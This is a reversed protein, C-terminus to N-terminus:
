IVWYATGDSVITLSNYQTSINIQTTNDITGSGDVVVSVTGSSGVRKVTFTKGSYVASAAPLTITIEGSALIVHDDALVTYNTTKSVVTLRSTPTYGLADVVEASTVPPTNSWQLDGNEDVVMLQGQTPMSDPWKVGKITLSSGGNLSPDLSIGSTSDTTIVAPGSGVPNVVLASASVSLDGTSSLTAGSVTIDSLKPTGWGSQGSGMIKFSKSETDLWVDGPNVSYTLAPDVGGQYITVGAKGITFYPVSTGKSNITIAM